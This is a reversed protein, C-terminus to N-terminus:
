GERISIDGGALDLNAMLSLTDTFYPSQIFIFFVIQSKSVPVPKVMLQDPDILGDETLTTTIKDVGEQGTEAKNAKGILDEMDAGVHDYYWDEMVSKVRNIISQKQYQRPSTVSIDNNEIVMDGDESTTIDLEAARM